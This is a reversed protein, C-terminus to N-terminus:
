NPTSDQPRNKLPPLPPPLHDPHFFGWPPPLPRGIVFPALHTFRLCDAGGTQPGLLAFGVMSLIGAAGILPVAHFTPRAEILSRRVLSDFVQLSACVGVLWGTLRVPLADQARLIETFTVAATAFVGGMILAATQSVGIQGFDRMRALMVETTMLSPEDEMGRGGLARVPIVDPRLLIRRNLLWASREAGASAGVLSYHSGRCADGFAGKGAVFPPNCCDWAPCPRSGPRGPRGPRAAPCPPAGSPSRPPM